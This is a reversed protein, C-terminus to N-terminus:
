QGNFLMSKLLGYPCEGKRAKHRGLQEQLMRFVHAAGMNSRNPVRRVANEIQLFGRFNPGLRKKTM